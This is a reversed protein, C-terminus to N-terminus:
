LKKINKFDPKRYCEIAHYKQMARVNRCRIQWATKRLFIASYKQSIDFNAIKRLFIMDTILNKANKTVNKGWM